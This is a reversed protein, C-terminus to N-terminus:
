RSSYALVVTQIIGYVYSITWYFGAGAPITFALFLSFLPMIYLTIKMAGMGAAADPNNKSMMKNSIFTQLLAMLFSVIPILILPFGM